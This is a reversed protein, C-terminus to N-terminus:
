NAMSNLIPKRRTKEWKQQGPNEPKEHILFLQNEEETRMSKSPKKSDAVLIWIIVLM